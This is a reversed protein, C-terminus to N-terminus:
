WETLKHLDTLHYNLPLCVFQLYKDKELILQIAIEQACEFKFAFPIQPIKPVGQTIVSLVLFMAGFIFRYVITKDTM